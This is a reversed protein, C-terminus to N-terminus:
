EENDSITVSFQQNKEICEGGHISGNTPMLGDFDQM